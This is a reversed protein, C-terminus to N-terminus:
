AINPRPKRKLTANGDYNIISYCCTGGCPGGTLDGLSM